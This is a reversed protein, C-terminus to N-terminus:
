NQLRLVETFTVPEHVGNFFDTNKPSVWYRTEMIYKLAKQELAQMGSTILGYYNIEGVGLPMCM